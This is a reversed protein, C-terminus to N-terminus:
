ESSLAPKLSLGRTSGRRRVLWVLALYLVLPLFVPLGAYWRADFQLAAGVARVVTVSQATVSLLLAAHELLSRPRLIAFPLTWVVYWPWFWISAFMLYALMTWGWVGILDRLSRVRALLGLLAGLFPLTFAWKIRTEASTMSQPVVPRASVPREGESSLRSLRRDVPSAQVPLDPPHVQYAVAAALSNAFQNLQNNGLIAEINRRGRWDGGYLLAALAACVLGGAVLAVAARVRLERPRFAWVLYAPALLLTTWKTLVALGLCVVAIFMRGRLQALVAALAWGMMVVDNHGAGAFELMVLPNGAFLWAGREAQAPQLRRLIAYILASSLLIGLLGILRFAVVYFVPQADRGGLAAIARTTTQWLPGYVSVVNRDAVLPLIQDRLYRRPLATYPNGDYVADVRGYMAYSYLDNSPMTALCLMPMAVLLMAPLVRASLPLASSRRLVSGSRMYGATMAILGAVLLAHPVLALPGDTTLSVGSWLAPAWGLSRFVSACLVLLAGVLEIEVGRWFALSRHWGSPTDDVPSSVAYSPM